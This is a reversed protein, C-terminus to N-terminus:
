FGCSHLRLGALISFLKPKLENFRAIKKLEKQLSFSIEVVPVGYKTSKGGSFSNIGFNQVM